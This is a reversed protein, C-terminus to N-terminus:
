ITSYKFRQVLARGLDHDDKHKSSHHTHSHKHIITSSSNGDIPESSLDENRHELAVVTATANNGGGGSRLERLRRVM